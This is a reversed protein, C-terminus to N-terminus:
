ASGDAISARFEAAYRRIEALVILREEATLAEDALAATIAEQDTLLDAAIERATRKALGQRVFGM